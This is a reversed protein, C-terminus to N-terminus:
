LDRFSFVKVFESVSPRNKLAEKLTKTPMKEDDQFYVTIYINNIGNMVSVVKFILIGQLYMQPTTPGFTKFKGM